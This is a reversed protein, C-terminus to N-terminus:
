FPLAPMRFGCTGEDAWEQRGQSTNDMIFGSIGPRRLAAVVSQIGSAMQVGRTRRIRDLQLGVATDRQRGAIVIFSFHM